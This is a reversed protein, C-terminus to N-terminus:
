IMGDKLQPGSDLKSLAAAVLGDWSMRHHRAIKDMLKDGPLRTKACLESLYPASIKYKRAVRAAEGRGRLPDIEAVLLDRAYSQILKRQEKPTM